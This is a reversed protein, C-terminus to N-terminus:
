EDSIDGEYEGNELAFLKQLILSYRVAESSSPDCAWFCDSYFKVAEHLNKYEYVKGYCKVKIPVNIDQM